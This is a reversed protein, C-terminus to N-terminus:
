IAGCKCTVARWGPQKNHKREQIAVGLILQGDKLSHRSVLPPPVFVDLGRVKVFGFGGPNLSFRGEFPRATDKDPHRDGAPEVTLARLSKGHEPHDFAQVRLALMYGPTLEAVAPQREHRIFVAEDISLVIRCVGKESNNSEVIGIRVPIGSASWFATEAVPAFRHYLDANASPTRATETDGALIALAPPIAWKNQQRVAIALGAEIGAERHMGANALHQALAARVNILFDPPTGKCSLAKCLCAMQMQPEDYTRGLVEWAWFANANAKLTTVIGARAEEHKGNMILLRSRYYPIWPHKPFRPAHQLVLELAWQAFAAFEPTNARNTGDLQKAVKYVATILKEM